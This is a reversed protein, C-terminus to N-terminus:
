LCKGTSNFFITKCCSSNLSFIFYYYICAFDIRSLKSRVHLSAIESYATGYKNEAVCEYSGEDEDQAKLIKLSALILFFFNSFKKSLFWIKGGQYLSYRPNTMDVPVTDRLWYIQPEPDGIARCPILANHGKEVGQM